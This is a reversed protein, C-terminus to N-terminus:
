EGGKLMDGFLKEQLSAPLRSIESETLSQVALGRGPKGQLKQMAPSPVRAHEMESPYGKKNLAVDQWNTGSLAADFTADAFEILQDINQDTGDDSEATLKLALSYPINEAEARELAHERLQLTVQRKKLAELLAKADAAATGDQASKRELEAKLESNERLLDTVKRDLSSVQKQLMEAGDEAARDLDTNEKNM